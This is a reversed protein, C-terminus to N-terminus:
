DRSHEIKNRLTRILGALIQAPVDQLEPEPIESVAMRDITEIARQGCAAIQKAAEETGAFDGDATQRLYGVIRDRLQQGSLQKLPPAPTEAASEPVNTEQLIQQNLEYSEALLRKQKNEENEDIPALKLEEAGAKPDPVYLRNRCSPCKGWKGAANEPAEIKKGCHQCHFTIAM